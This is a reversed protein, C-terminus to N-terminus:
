YVENNSSDITIMNELYIDPIKTSNNYWRSPAIVIKDKNDSLYAGWWSFSSNSIIFHNCSYMLRLSEYDKFGEVFYVPHDFTMKKAIDISDSFVYFTIDKNNKAFINMAQRYYDEGCVNLSESNIYDNGLRMSVAVSNTSKINDLLDFENKTPQTKVKLEDAIQDRYKSFYKESQFYGYICSIKNNDFYTDYYYRDFNYYLGKKALYHYTGIGVYDKRMIIKILKQYIHFARQTLKLYIKKRLPLEAHRIDKVNDSIKLNSLSYNRIKYKRYVSRDIYIQRNSELSLMRAFAIEFMQNGLGGIVKLVIM